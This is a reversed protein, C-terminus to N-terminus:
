CLSEDDDDDEWCPALGAPPVMVHTFIRGVTELRDKVDPWHDPLMTVAPMELTTAGPPYEPSALDVM